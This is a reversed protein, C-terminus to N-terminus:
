HPEAPLGVRQRDGKPCATNQGSPRWVAEGGQGFASVGRAKGLSAPPSAHGRFRSGSGSVLLHAELDRLAPKFAAADVVAYGQQPLGM